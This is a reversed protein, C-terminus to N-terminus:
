KLITGGFIKKALHLKKIAEQSYNSQNLKYIEEPLYGIENQPLNKLVSQCGVIWVTEGLVKSNIKVQVRELSELYVWVDEENQKMREILDQTEALRAADGAAEPGRLDEIHFAAGSISIRFGKKWAEEILPHIRNLIEIKM